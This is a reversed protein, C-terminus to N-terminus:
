LCQDIHEREIPSPRMLITNHIIGARLKYVHDSHLRLKLRCRPASVMAVRVGLFAYWANWKASDRHRM